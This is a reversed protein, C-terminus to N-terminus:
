IAKTREGLVYRITDVLDFVLSVTITTILVWFIRSAWIPLSERRILRVLYWILPGWFVLHPLGLLKVYGLWKFLYMVAFSNLTHTMFIISAPLWTERWIFLLLPLLFAGFAMWSLWIQVWLPQAALSDLFSMSLEM